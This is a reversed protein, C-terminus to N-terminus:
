LAGRTFNKYYLEQKEWLRMTLADMAAHLTDYQLSRAIRNLVKCTRHPYMYWPM